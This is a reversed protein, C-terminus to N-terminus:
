KSHEKLHEKSTLSSSHQPEVFHLSLSLFIFVSFPILYLLLQYSGILASLSYKFFLTGKRGEEAQNKRRLYSQRLLHGNKADTIFLPM